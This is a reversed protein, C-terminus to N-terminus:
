MLKRANRFAELAAEAFASFFPDRFSLEFRPADDTSDMYEIISESLTLEPHLSDEGPNTFVEQLLQLDDWEAWNKAWEAGYVRGENRLEQEWDGRSERLRVAMRDLDTTAAARAEIMELERRLAAQCTASVNLEGAARVREGLDDSVYISLQM